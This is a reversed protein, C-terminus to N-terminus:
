YVNSNNICQSFYVPNWLGERELTETERRKLRRRWETVPVLPGRAGLTPREELSVKLDNLEQYAEDILKCGEELVPGTRFVAANTQM